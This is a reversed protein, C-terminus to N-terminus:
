ENTDRNLNEAMWATWIFNCTCNESKRNHCNQPKATWLWSVLCPLLCLTSCSRFAYKSTFINTKCLSPLSCVTVHHKGLFYEFNTKYYREETEEENKKLLLFSGKKKENNEKLYTKTIRLNHIDLSFGPEPEAVLCEPKWCTFNRSDHVHQRTHKSCAHSEGHEKTLLQQLLCMRPLTQSFQNHVTGRSITDLALHSKM